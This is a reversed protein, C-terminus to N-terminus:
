IKKLYDIFLQTEKIRARLEKLEEKRGQQGELIRKTVWKEMINSTERDFYYTKLLKRKAKLYYYKRIIKEM